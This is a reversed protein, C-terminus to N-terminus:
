DQHESYYREIQEDSPKVVRELMDADAFLYDVIFERSKMYGFGFSDRTTYAGQQAMRYKNFHAQIEEKSPPAVQNLYDNADMLVAQIKVQEEMNRHFQRLEAESPTLPPLTAVYNKYVKLWNAVIQRTKDESYGSGQRIEAIFNDYSEGKVGLFGLFYDVEGDSVGIGAEEAEHKLMAYALDPNNREDSLMAFAMGVQRAIPHRSYAYRALQLPPSSLLGLEFRAQQRENYSIEGASTTGIALDGRDRDGACSRLSTPILFAIMLLVMIIIVMKQRKRFFGLAM